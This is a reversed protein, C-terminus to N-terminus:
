ATQLTLKQGLNQYKLMSRSKMIRQFQFFPLDHLNMVASITGRRIQNNSSPQTLGRTPSRPASVVDMTSVDDLTPVTRLTAKTAVTMTQQRKPISLDQHSSENLRKRRVSKMIAADCPRFVMSEAPPTCVTVDKPSEPMAETPSDTPHLKRLHTYSVFNLNITQIFM